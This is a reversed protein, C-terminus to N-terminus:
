LRGPRDRHGGRGAEIRRARRKSDSKRFVAKSGNRYDARQRQRHPPGRGWTKLSGTVAPAFTIPQPGHKGSKM